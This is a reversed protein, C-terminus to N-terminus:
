LAPDVVLAVEPTFGQLGKDNMVATFNAFAQTVAAKILAENLTSGSAVIRISVVEKAHNTGDTVPASISEIFELRNNTLSIAGATKPATSVAVRLTHTVDSPDAYRIEGNSVSTKRYNTTM